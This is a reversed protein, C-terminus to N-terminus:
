SPAPEARAMAARCQLVFAAHEEDVSVGVGVVGAPREAGGGPDCAAAAPAGQRAHALLAKRADNLRAALQRREAAPAGAAADLCRGITQRCRLDLAHAASSATAARSADREALAAAEDRADVQRERWQRALEAPDLRETWVGLAAGAGAAVITTREWGRADPPAREYAGAMEVLLHEPVRTGPPRAANRALALALPAHVHVHVFAAACEAALHFAAKRMSRLHSNDDLLVLAPELAGALLAERALRRAEARSARWAGVDFAGEALGARRLEARMLADYCVHVVRPAASLGLPGRLPASDAAIQAALTSKGAGPIGSLCLLCPRVEAAM